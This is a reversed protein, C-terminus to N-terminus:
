HLKCHDVNMQTRAHSLFFYCCVSLVPTENSTVRDVKRNLQSSVENKNKNSKSIKNQKIQQKEGVTSSM